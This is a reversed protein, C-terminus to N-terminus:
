PVWLYQYLLRGPSYLSASPIPKDFEGLPGLDESPIMPSPLSHASPCSVLIITKFKVTIQLLLEHLLHLSPVDPVKTPFISSDSRLKIGASCQM